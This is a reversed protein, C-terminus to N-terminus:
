NQTHENLKEDWYIFPGTSTGARQLSARIDKPTLAQVSGDVFLANARGNNRLHVVGEANQNSNSNGSLSVTVSQWNKTKDGNGGIRRSISDIFLIWSSPNELLNLNRPLRYITRGTKSDTQYNYSGTDLGFGFWPQIEGNSTTASKPNWAPSFTVKALEEPQGLGSSILRGKWNTEHHGPQYDWATFGTPNDQELLTVYAGLSKLNSIAQTNAASKRHRAMTPIAIAAIVIIISIVVLVETLSFGHSVPRRLCGAPPSKVAAAHLCPNM